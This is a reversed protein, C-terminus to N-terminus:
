TAFYTVWVGRRRGPRGCAPTKRTPQGVLRGGGRGAVHGVHAFTATLLLIPSIGRNKILVYLGNAILRAPRAALSICRKGGNMSPDIRRSGSRSCSNGEIDQKHRAPFNAGLSRTPSM